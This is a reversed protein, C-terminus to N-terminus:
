TTPQAARISDRKAVLIHGLQNNGRYSKDQIERSHLPVGIGFHQNHTAENLQMDGTDLLLKALNPNQDFKKEIVKTM